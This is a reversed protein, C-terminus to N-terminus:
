SSQKTSIVKTKCILDHLGREDTRFIMFGIVFFIIMSSITSILDNAIYWNTPSLKMICLLSCIEPILNTIIIQRIIFLSPKLEEGKLPVVQIKFIVKGITKGNWLFSIIGFYVFMCGISIISLTQNQKELSYTITIVDKEELETSGSMIMETMKETNEHLAKEYKEYEKSFLPTSFILTAIFLTILMDIIFAGIRKFKM